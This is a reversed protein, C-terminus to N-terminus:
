GHVRGDLVQLTRQALGAARLDHTVVLLTVGDSALGFLLDLVQQGTRQDLSGTPEDAIVLRPQKVLARALSVRQREGGSLVAARREALHGLGVRELASRCLDERDRPHVPGETLGV